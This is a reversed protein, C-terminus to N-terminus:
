ALRNSQGAADPARGLISEYLRNVEAGFTSLLHRGELSEVGPHRNRETLAKKSTSSHLTGM